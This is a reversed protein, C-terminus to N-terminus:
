RLWRAVFILPSGAFVPDEGYVRVISLRAAIQLMFFHDIEIDLYIFFLLILNDCRFLFRVITKGIKDLIEFGIDVDM